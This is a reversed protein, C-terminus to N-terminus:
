RETGPSTPHGLCRRHLRAGARRRERRSPALAEQRRQEQGAVAVVRGTEPDVACALHARQAPRLVATWAGEPTAPGPRPVALRAVLRQAVHKATRNAGALAWVGQPSARAVALMERYGGTNTSFRPAALPREQGDCDGVANLSMEAARWRGRGHEAVAVPWGCSSARRPCARTGPSNSPRVESRRHRAPDRPPEHTADTTAGRTSAPGGGAPRSGGAM